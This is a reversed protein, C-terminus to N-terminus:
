RVVIRKEYHSPTEPHADGVVRVLGEGSQDFRLEVDRPLPVAVGLCAVGTRHQDYPRVIRLPPPGARVEVEAGDPRVCPSGLTTVTITFTQGASVTDPAQLVEYGLSADLYGLRREWVTETPNSCTPVLLVALAYVGRSVFM